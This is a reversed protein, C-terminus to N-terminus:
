DCCSDRWGCGCRYHAHEPRLEGGCLPCWEFTGLPSRDRRPCAPEPEPLPLELQTWTLTPMPGAHYPGADFQRHIRGM